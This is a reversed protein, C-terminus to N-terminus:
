GAIYARLGTTEDALEGNAPAGQGLINGCAASVSRTRRRHPDSLPKQSQVAFDHFEAFKVAIRPFNTGFLAQQVIWHRTITM